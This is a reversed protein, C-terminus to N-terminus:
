HRLKTVKISANLRDIFRGGHSKLWEIDAFDEIKM